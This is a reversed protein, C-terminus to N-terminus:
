DHFERSKENDRKITKKETNIKAGDAKNEEKKIVKEQPIPKSIYKRYCEVTDCVQKWSYIDVCSRCIYYPKGCYVCTANKKM